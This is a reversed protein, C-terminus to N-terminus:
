AGNQLDAFELLYRESTPRNFYAGQLACLTKGRVANWDKLRQDPRLM